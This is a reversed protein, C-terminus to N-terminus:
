TWLWLSDNLADLANAHAAKNEPVKRARLREEATCQAIRERMRSRRTWIQLELHCIPRACM